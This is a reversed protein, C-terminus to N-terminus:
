SGFYKILVNFADMREKNSVVDEAHMYGGNMWSELHERIMSRHEILNACTIRDAVEYDIALMPNKQTM